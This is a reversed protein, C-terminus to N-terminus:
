EKGKGPVLAPQLTKEETSVVSPKNYEFHRKLRLIPREILVWSFYSVLILLALNELRTLYFNIPTSVSFFRANLAYLYQYTYHPLVLHYLYVGYSIKGIFMLVHNNLVRQIVLSKDPVTVVELIVWATFLSTLTRSPVVEFFNYGLVRASQMGFCVAAIALWAKKTRSLFNPRYVMAWALFAGAGFGDLCSFTLLGGHPLLLQSFIGTFFSIIIIPLLWSKKPFLMLWPWVLYFQEEVSLSWLHSLMGDWDQIKFFYINSTYTFFYIFNEKIATGTTHSFFLLLFILLYYIPFIRLVRRVFFSKIVRSKSQAQGEAENRNELLIRTILFGSLVFFIDVGNFFSTYINIPNREPFWHHIIVLLVAIARINDLQKFYQM